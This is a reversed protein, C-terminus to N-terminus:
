DGHHLSEFLPVTPMVQPYVAFTLYVLFIRMIGAMGDGILQSTILKASPYVVRIELPYQPCECPSELLWMPRSGRCLLVTGLSCFHRTGFGSQILHSARLPPIWIRQSSFSRSPELKSFPPYLQHGRVFLSVGFDCSITWPSSGSHNRCTCAAPLWVSSAVLIVHSPGPHATQITGVPVVLLCGTWVQVKSKSSAPATRQRKAPCPPEEEEEEEDEGDERRRRARRMTHGTPAPHMPPAGRRPVEKSRTATRPPGHHPPLDDMAEAIALADASSMELPDVQMEASNSLSAAIASAKHPTPPLKRASSHLLRIDFSASGVASPGTQAPPTVPGLLPTVSCEPPTTPEYYLSYTEVRSDPSSSRRLPSITSPRPHESQIWRWWYWMSDFSSMGQVPYLKELADEHPGRPITFWRPLFLNPSETDAPLFDTSWMPNGREAPLFDILDLLTNFFGHALHHSLRGARFEDAITQFITNEPAATDDLLLVVREIDLDHHIRGNALFAVLAHFSPTAIRQLTQHDALLFPDRLPQDEPFEQTCPFLWRFALPPYTDWHPSHASEDEPLFTLWDDRARIPILGRVALILHVLAALLTM